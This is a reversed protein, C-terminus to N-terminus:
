QGHGNYEVTEQSLQLSGQATPKLEFQYANLGFDLRAAIKATVKPGLFLFGDGGGCSIVHQQFSEDAFTRLMRFFDVFNSKGAGNAGILVNLKGVRFTDLREISKFGNLTIRDIARGM